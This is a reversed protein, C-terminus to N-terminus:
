RRRTLRWAVLLATVFLAAAGVPVLLVGRGPDGGYVVLGGLLFGGPLLVVAVTLLAAPLRAGDLLAPRTALTVAFAIHVLGLLVGHAHALTLMHRRTDNAVNLYWDVKFGHMIELTIGLSLFVLLAWWGITLHRRVLPSAADDPVIWPRKWRASRGATHADRATASSTRFAFSVQRASSFFVRSSPRGPAENAVPTSARSATLLVTAFVVPFLASPIILPRSSSSECSTTSTVACM